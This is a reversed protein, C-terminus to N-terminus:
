FLFTAGLTGGSLVTGGGFELNIGINDNVFYRGGVHLGISFGGSGSGTYDIGSGTTDDFNTNWIYYGLNLGAYLDWEDPLEILENFHYSGRVGLGFITHKWKFGSFTESKGQYSIGGGITINDTVPAEFRAFIPIGWGTIGVGVTLMNTKDPYPNFQAKTLTTSLIFTALVFTIYIKKM